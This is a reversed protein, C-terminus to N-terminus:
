HRPPITPEVPRQFPAILADSTPHLIKEGPSMDLSAIERERWSQVPGTAAQAAIQRDRRRKAETREFKEILARNHPNDFDTM